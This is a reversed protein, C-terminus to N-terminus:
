FKIDINLKTFLWQWMKLAVMNFVKSAEVRCAKHTQACEGDNSNYGIKSARIYRYFRSSEDPKTELPSKLEKLFVESAPFYDEPYASLECLIKERCIESHLQIASFYNDLNTLQTYHVPDEEPDQWEGGEEETVEVSNGLSRGGFLSGAAETGLSLGGLSLGGSGFSPLMFSVPLGFIVGITVTGEPTMLLQGMVDSTLLTLLLVTLFMGSDSFLRM